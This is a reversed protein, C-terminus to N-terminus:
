RPRSYRNAYRSEISFDVAFLSKLVGEESAPV